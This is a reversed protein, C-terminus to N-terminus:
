LYKIFEFYSNANILQAATKPDNFLKGIHEVFFRFVNKDDESIALLVIVSIPYSGWIIPKSLVSISVATKKASFDTAHPLAFGNKFSTSAAQEREMIREFYTEDVYGFKVMDDTIVKIIEKPKKSSFYTYFLEKKVYKNKFKQVLKANKKEDLELLVKHIMFEDESTLFVNIEIIPINIIQTTRLPITTLVFDINQKNINVEDLYASVDVINLKSNFSKNIKTMCNETTAAGLPSILLVKYKDNQIYRDYATGFHLCLFGIEDENISTNLYKDIIKKSTVAMEFLLPFKSKIDSLYVNNISENNEKIRKFLSELHLSLSNTFLFDDKFDIGYNEYITDKIANIIELVTMNSNQNNAPREALRVSHLLYAVEKIEYYSINIGMEKKISNFYEVLISEELNIPVEDKESFEMGKDYKALSVIVGIHIMILPIYEIKIQYNKNSLIKLLKDKLYVLDFGEFLKAVSTINAFNGKAEKKILESLLQKKEEDKGSLVLCNHKREIILSGFKSIMNNLLKIDKKILYDSIYLEEALKQIRVSNDKALLLKRLIAHATEDKTTPAASIEDDLFSNECLKYGFRKNAIIIDDYVININLIDNRITRDTVKFLESLEKGTIYDKRQKLIELIFFQRKNLM